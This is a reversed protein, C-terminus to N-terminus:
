LAFAADRRETEFITVTGHDLDYGAVVVHHGFGTKGM